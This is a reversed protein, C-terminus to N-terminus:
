RSILTATSLTRLLAETTSGLLTRHLPGHGYAGAVILDAGCGAAADRMLTATCGKRPSCQAVANVRRMRLSREIELM